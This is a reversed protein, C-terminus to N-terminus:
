GLQEAPQGALLIATHSSASDVSKTTHTLSSLLAHDDFRFRCLLQSSSALRVTQSLTLSVLVDAIQESVGLRFMGMAKDDRLLRQCLMLYSLNVERLEDLTSNGNSMNQGWISFLNVTKLASDSPDAPNRVDGQKRRTSCHLWQPWGCSRRM